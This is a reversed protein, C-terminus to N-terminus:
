RGDHPELTAAVQLLEARTLDGAVTVVLDDTVAWLHPIALPDVILEATTGDLVGGAIDVEEAQAQHSDGPALPDSWVSPDPGVPRTTLVFQDLGRRFSLAAIDGVEPNTGAAGIVSPQTSVAVEALRYGDPVQSPVLPRYGVAAEVADLTVRRFGIDRVTVEVGAPFDLRFSDPPPAENVHLGEIRTEWLDRGRSSAVARVPFGTSRDVTVELHDPALEGLTLDPPLDTSLTWAARGDVDTEVVAGAETTALARVVSGMRRQLLDVSPGEDPPGPALGHRELPFLEDVDPMSESVALAQEVNTHADYAIEGGRTLDVAWLDGHATLVFEWRREEGEAADVSILEGSVVEASAWAGAVAARVEAATAVSERGPLAVSVAVVAVAVVRLSRPVLVVVDASAPPAVLALAAACLTRRATSM